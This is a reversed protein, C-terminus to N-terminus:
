DGGDSAVLVGSRQDLAARISDESDHALHGYRTDIMAVSTGM